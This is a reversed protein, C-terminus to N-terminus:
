HCKTFECCQSVVVEIAGSCKMVRFSFRTSMLCDRRMERGLGEFGEGGEFM